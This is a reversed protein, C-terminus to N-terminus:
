FSIFGKKEKINYLGRGIKGRLNDVGLVIKVKLQYMLDGKGEVLSLSIVQVCIRDENTIFVVPLNDQLLSRTLTEHDPGNEIELRIQEKKRVVM